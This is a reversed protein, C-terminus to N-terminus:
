VDGDRGSRIRKLPRLGDAADTRWDRDAMESEGPEITGSGDALKATQVMKIVAGIQDPLWCHGPGYEEGDGDLDLHFEIFSSQYKLAASMLVPISVTHDSWGFSLNFIEEFPKLVIRLSAISKLNAEYVPTPYASTCRLITVDLGPFDNISNLAGEIEIQTAMGTSFVVPKGTAACSRFLDHWLLEYSAIKYFDVYPKLEEVAELYFPTCSFEMGLDHAKDALKPIFEFPIEWQRRSQHIESTALIEPAFLEDIKFLQFKVADCGAKAAAEVMQIARGLDRNHNSSIEAVFRTKSQNL